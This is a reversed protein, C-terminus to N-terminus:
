RKRATKKRGRTAKSRGRAATTRKRAQTRQGNSSAGATLRQKARQWKEGLLDLEEPDLLDRAMAFIRTEEEEVHQRVAEGLVLLQAKFQEDRKRRSGLLGLLHKVVDHETYAEFVDVREDTDEARDRLEPYFLREELTSHATLERAIQPALDDLREDEPECDQVEDLLAAVTRHEQKLVSLIDM